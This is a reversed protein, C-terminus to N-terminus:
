APSTLEVSWATPLSPLRTCTSASGPRGLESPGSPTVSVAADTRCGTLSTSMWPLDPPEVLTPSLTNRAKAAPEPPSSSTTIAAIAMKRITLAIGAIVPLVPLRNVVCTQFGSSLGGTNPMAASSNPVNTDDPTASSIPTGIAIPIASNM